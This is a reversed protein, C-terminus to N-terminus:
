TTMQQRDPQVINKWKIEFIAHNESFIVSSLNHTKIKEVLKESVNRM